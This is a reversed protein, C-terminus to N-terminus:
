IEDLAKFTNTAGRGDMGIYVRSFVYSKRGDVEADPAADAIRDYAGHLKPDIAHMARVVNPLFGVGAGIESFASAVEFLHTEIVRPDCHNLIGLLLSLGGIGGGIIAIRLPERVGEADEM